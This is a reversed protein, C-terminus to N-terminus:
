RERGVVGVSKLLAGKKLKNQSIVLNACYIKYSVLFGWPSKTLAVNTKVVERTNYNTQTITDSFVM